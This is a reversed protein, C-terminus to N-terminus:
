GTLVEALVFLQFASISVPQFARIASTKVEAIRKLTLTSRKRFSISFM